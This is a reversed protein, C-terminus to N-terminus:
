VRAYEFLEDTTCRRQGLCGRLAEVAVDIGIKNRFKFCDVVTKAPGYVRVPVGEIFQTEIGSNRAEGSFRVIRLRTYPIGALAGMKTLWSFAAIKTGRLERSPRLSNVSKMRETTLYGYPQRKLM